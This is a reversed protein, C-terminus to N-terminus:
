RRAAVMQDRFLDEAALAEPVVEGAIADRAAKINGTACVDHHHIGVAKFHHTVNGVRFADVTDRESGLEATAEDAVAPGVGHSDEVQLRELRQSRDRGPGTRIGDNVIAGRLTDESEVAVAAIRRGNVRSRSCHGARDGQSALRLKGNSISLTADVVVK